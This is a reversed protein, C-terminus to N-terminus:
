GGASATQHLRYNEKGNPQEMRPRPRKPSARGLARALNCNRPAFPFGPQRGPTRGRLSPPASLLNAPPPCSRSLRPSTLSETDSAHLPVGQPRGLGLLPA